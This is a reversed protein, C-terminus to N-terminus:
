AKSSMKTLFTSERNRQSRCFSFRTLTFQCTDTANYSSMCSFVIDLFSHTRASTILCNIWRFSLAFLCSILSFAGSINLLDSFHSLTSVETHDYQVFFPLDNGDSSLHKALKASLPPIGGGRGEGIEQVSEVPIWSINKFDPVRFSELVGNPTSNKDSVARAEELQKAAQKLGEPGLKARRAAVRAEEEKELEEQRSASPKAQVVVRTPDVYYRQRVISTLGM